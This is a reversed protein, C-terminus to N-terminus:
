DYKRKMFWLEKLSLDLHLTCFNEKFLGKKESGNQGLELSV